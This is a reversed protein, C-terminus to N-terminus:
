TLSAWVLIVLFAPVSALSYVFGIGAAKVLTLPWNGGFVARLSRLAYVTFVVAAAFAVVAAIAAVGSFKALEALTFILFVFAHLHVAFVLATPFRRSRYFMWVIAAFVPLMGFFVRPMITFLRARFGDPNEAIAKLMPRIFWPATDLQKLVEARDEATLIAQGNSQSVSVQMGGPGAVRNGRTSIQPAAAAVLFYIVSVTLYLKVPSLYRARRGAIYDNTLQGPRVLGRFTEALRGDYGSFEQWADGALEAITPDPPVSRQGCAVCFAGHLDTGCNLCRAAHPHALGAM